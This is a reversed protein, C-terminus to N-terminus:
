ILQQLDGWRGLFHGLSILWGIGAVGLSGSRRSGALLCESGLLLSCLVSLKNLVMQKKVLSTPSVIITFMSIRMNEYSSVM